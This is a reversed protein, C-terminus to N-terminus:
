EHVHSIFDCGITVSRRSRSFPCMEQSLGPAKGSAQIRM